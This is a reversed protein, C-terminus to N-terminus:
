YAFKQCKTKMLRTIIIIRDFTHLYYEIFTHVRAHLLLTMWQRLDPNCSDICSQMVAGRCTTKAASAEDSEESPRKRTAYIKELIQELRLKSGAFQLIKKIMDLIFNM